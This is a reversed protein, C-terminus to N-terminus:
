GHRNEPKGLTFYFTSGREAESELWIRGGHREIIRKCLALGIGTGPYKERTHLRQFIVFIREFYQPEIGIGNDKVWFVWEETGKKRGKGATRRLEAGIHIEPRKPGRFKLANGVLNQYLQTLQTLDGFVEPMEDMTIVAQSDEIAVTLNELAQGIPEACNVTAFAKGHRGVRSYLLLDNILNQMRKAGDVAFGIFEKGEPTLAEQCRKVLLQLYSAIMRLPEQLDHSAAYAFHELETNSRQLEQTRLDLAEEAHKRDSIDRSLGFTGIIKGAKDRLPMKTTSVWTLSGDPWTEKEERGVLPEGTRVIQQEDEFAQQAHEPLFFDFDTKGVAESPEKLKFAKAMPKNIRLFRSERDKFYIRDPINDMLAEMLFREEELAAEARKRKSIDFTLVAVGTIEGALDKIPTFSMAVQVPARSKSVLSTEWRIAREGGCIKDLFQRVQSAREEPLLDGMPRNKLEKAGYGHLREAAENCRVINGELSLEMVPNDFCDLISQLRRLEARCLSLQAEVMGRKGNLWAYLGTGAALGVIVCAWTSFTWDWSM